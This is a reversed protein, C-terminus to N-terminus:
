LNVEYSRLMINAAIDSVAYQFVGSTNLPLDFIGMCEKASNNNQIVCVRTADGISATSGKARAYGATDSGGGSGGIFMALNVSQSLNGDVYASIDVDTFSTAGGGSLVTIPTLFAVRRTPGNGSVQVLAFKSGDWYLEGVLRKVDYGEANPLTMTPATRSKSLLFDGATPDTSKGLAFLYVKVGSAGISGTDLGGENDGEDWTSSVKKTMAAPNMVFTNTDDKAVGATFHIGNIADITDNSFVLGYLTGAPTADVFTGWHTPESTPDNGENDDTKSRYITGDVQCFSNTYYVTDEDWEPIGAQFLYALQYFGVLFVGNIDQMAPVQPQSGVSIVASGLGDEWAPLSQITAPNKTTVKANAALSGFQGFDATPGDAGFQIQTVRLIKAM